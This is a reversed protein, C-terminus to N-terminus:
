SKRLYESLEKIMEKVTPPTKYGAAKWINQNMKSDNTKLTRNIVKEAKVPTIKVDGRDFYKAFYELMKAKSPSDASIVHQFNPLKLNNKIIGLCIKAFHYTTVGNWKHNSFGNVKANKEQYLFWDMLSKHSTLEPGIISDRLHYVNPLKVEGLSKTKGYADLPDHEDAETYNGKKGSFVCDTEIQIVQAKNKKAALALNYPFLSNIRVARAVEDANDDHIYPKIIGICNIAWSAGRLAKSLMEITAGDVDLTIFKIKPYKKSLKKVEQTNKVSAILNLDEEHSLVDLVMSGLMGSAGLIAIKKM